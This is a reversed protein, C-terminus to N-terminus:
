RWIREGYCFGRLFLLFCYVVECGNWKRGDCGYFGAADDDDADSPFILQEKNFGGLVYVPVDEIDDVSDIEVDKALIAVPNSGGDLDGYHYWANIDESAALDTDFVVTFRGTKPDVIYNVVLETGTSSSEFGM